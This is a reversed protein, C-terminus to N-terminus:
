TSDADPWLQKGEEERISRNKQRNNTQVGNCRYVCVCVMLLLNPQFLRVRKNVASKLSGLVIIDNGVRTYNKNM